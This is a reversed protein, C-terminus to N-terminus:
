LCNAIEEEAIKEEVVRWGVEVATVEVVRCDLLM